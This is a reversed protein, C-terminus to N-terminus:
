PQTLAAQHMFIEYASNKQYFSKFEPLAYTEKLNEAWNTFNGKEPRVVLVGANIYLHLKIQDIATTILPFQDRIIQFHDCITESLPFPNVM